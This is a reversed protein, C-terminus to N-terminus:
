IFEDTCYVIKNIRQNHETYFESWKNLNSCKKKMKLFIDLEDKELTM